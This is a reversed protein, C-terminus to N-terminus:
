MEVTELSFDQDGPGILQYLLTKHGPIEAADARYWQSQPFALIAVISFLIMQLISRAGFFELWRNGVSPNRNTKTQWNFKLKYLRLGLTSRLLNFTKAIGTFMIQSFWILTRKLYVMGRLSYLWIKALYLKM